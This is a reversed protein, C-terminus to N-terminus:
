SNDNLFGGVLPVLMPTIDERVPDICIIGTEKMVKQKHDIYQDLTHGSSDLCIGLPETSFGLMRGLNNYLDSIDNIHPIINGMHGEKANMRHCIIYYQPMTAHFLAFSTASYAPHIISGQGEILIIPETSENIMYEINGPVFDIPISDIVMGRGRIILGTQGTAIWDACVNAQKLAQYALVTSTMKGNSFDTGVFLLRKCNRLKGSAIIRKYTNLHRLNLAGELYEHMPNVIRIGLKKIENIVAIQKATLKGGVPAMSIIFDPNIGHAKCEKLALKLARITNFIPISYEIKDTSYAQYYDSKYNEDFICYVNEPDFRLICHATKSIIPNNLSTDTYLIMMTTVM